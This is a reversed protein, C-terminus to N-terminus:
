GIKQQQRPRSSSTRPAATPMVAQGTASAAKTRVGLAGLTMEYYMEGLREISVPGKPSYWTCVGTLMPLIAFAAIRENDVNFYGRQKGRHIINILREEYAHRLSTIISRHKPTLSRLEMNGIFVEDKRTAHAHIHGTVFIRLQELPDEIGELSKDQDATLEEVVSKLLTFLLEQKSEIHNYLSGAQIGIAKALMRLNMAEYGHKAILRIGAERMARETAERSTGAKRM